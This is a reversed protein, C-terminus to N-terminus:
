TPVVELVPLEEISRTINSPVRVEPGVVLRKVRRSLAEIVAHAELRALGQGACGHPGYGFSLHDIPNREVLFANPNEYHRPDRNGAGFLIAIQAGAPIVAGDIDVDGCRSYRAPRAAGGALVDAAVGPAQQAGPDHGAGVAM